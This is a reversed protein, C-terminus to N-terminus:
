PTRSGSPQRKLCEIDDSRCNEEGLGTVFVELWNIAADAVSGNGVSSNAANLGEAVASNAGASNSAGAYAAGVGTVPVEVGTSKGSISCNSCTFPVPTVVFLNGGAIGADNANIVGHPAYLDVSGADVGPTAALAQIGSGAIAARLTVTPQGNDDYAINLAPASIATKAGRGADINGETSWILINGGDAAFVRSQNVLFDKYALANVDGTTQAVIGLQDPAKNIGFSTPALALGVNIEGGPAMLDINGGQETYIRSFYLEINGSYPNSQGAALDPNAGPFLTSIAAYAGSLDGVGSSSSASALRGYQRLLDFFLGELFTRQLQPTLANLQQKATAADIAPSAGLSQMYAIVQADFQSSTDIYKTIFAADQEGGGSVGAAVSISAGNAALIPNLLNARTSVGASTGLDVTRGATLQLAGPGDVVIGNLDQLISGNGAYVSPYAIDRGATVSTVDGATLNQAILNVDIVDRGASITVPKASWIGEPGSNLNPTFEVDGHLAVLRVPNSGAQSEALHVPTAAHQDPLPNALAAVIDDYIQLGGQPAAPSPIQDVAADAIILQGANGSRGTTAIISHNAFLQLNGNPAPSLALTRLIEIDGSLAAVNVTPPLVDLTSLTGALNTLNGGFFSGSVADKFAGNNDDLVVNGGVSTLNLASAPSYTSFYAVTGGGQLAGRNLLSPNLVETLAVDGRAVVGVSADGLAISPALGTGGLSPDVSGVLGGAQIEASGRGVYYSGGLISGGATVRLDGGGQIQVANLPLTKGAVQVGISPISASLDTIDGGASVTVNGGGLAGIGQQFSRYDVTWATASGTPRNAPAGVRWLWANVFQDTQAGVVNGAVDISIDGGDVPYARGQLTGNGGSLIIGDTGAVGATYLVSEQNGLTFNGSAAVDIFGNGTRVMVPAYRSNPATAKGTNCVTGKCAAVTVDAPNANVTALPNAAALDAGAVIRYSWSDQAVTPLTFAGLGTTARFGDSLSANFTIGNEARLTLIGPVDGNPGFRWNYLNWSSNLALTGTGNSQTSADIEVGPVIRFSPNSAQGLSTAIAAASAMFNAADAYLPNAPDAAIDAPSVVGTGNQYTSYGELTTRSAGSVVGNMAVAAGGSTVGEAVQAPVRLLVTGDGGPGSAGPGGGAANITSGSELRVGGGLSELQVTGGAQGALGAHVDISGALTILDAAALTVRGGTVGSADLRGDITIAGQDAELTVSSAKLTSGPALVLDGIGRQRMSQGGTFGGSGILRVIGAFDGFNQADVSISAGGGGALSGDATVNGMPASLSLSGGKGGAGASVSLSSGSSLVINGATALSITGGPSALTVGAYDQAVGSVDIAGASLIALNGGSADGTTTLSVRGSPLVIPAAVSISSGTVALSGGLGSVAGLAALKAPEKIVVAGSSQLSLDANTGTTLRSATIDLAGANGLHTTATATVAQQAALSLAGFGSVQFQGGGFEIEGASIALTGTGTGAAAATVNRSNLITVTNSSTLSALDGITGFGAFGAADFSMNQANVDVSGFINIAGNSQLALNRLGQAALINTGLVTGTGSGAAAGLSIGPSQVALDAGALSLAGDTVVRSSAELYVSGATAMVSSGAALTLVGATGSTNSRTVTSQAGASVGLFAGDGNFSYTQSPPAAGVPAIVAGSDLSIQNQAALLVNPANLSAGAALEISQAATDIANGNRLGGILLTQVGLADLSAPTLLVQGPQLAAATNAVLIDASSIDVEGGLGGATATLLRGGLSLSESAVLGLVGSDEPLRPLARANKAADAAFFQNAGTITYQAQQLVVSAPVVQFGTTRSDGFATGAVAAYGAIINGGGLVPYSQGSGIDQYGAVATVLFAGPLLAYRSPLLQYFGAALGTTGALYVSDGAQLSTGSSINPDFPAVNLNLGPLIAFQTPRGGNAATNALVDNTGGPGSIWEYAQLDGGGRVDIVAGQQVTVNAGNLTIRQSPPAIGNSGYVLNNGTPLPYVWSLGGQTTGFPITLGAASTSTTSNPGLDITTADITIDGLPARLTGQQIVTGASLTMSGGASLLPTVGGPNTLAILLGAAPSSVSGPDVSLVFSSLTSPYIQQAALDLEGAAFLAGDLTDPTASSRNPLGRLRLDGSANFDTKGFNELASTGYLEIFSGGVALTGTGPTAARVDSYVQDSSGFDIYPAQIRAVANPGALYTAADLTVQRGASLTVGGLFEIVGPLASGGAVPLPAAQLRVTDFGASRLSNTAIDALGATSVPVDAGPQTVVPTQTEALIIQRADAPFSSVGGFSFAYDNRNSGDLTVSLSGGVPQPVGAGPTGATAQMTGGLQMGEAATLNVAGGASAVEVARVAGGGVGTEDIMAATGAVDILSGPLLEIYGRSATINVTGGKLVSGTFLGLGNPFARSTGAVDLVGNAGLWIAQSAVYNAELQSSGLSLSITGGPARLTGDEEIRVNSTLSLNAAPDAAILAGAGITLSPTADAVTIINALGVSDTVPLSQTLSLNVPARFQDALMGVSATGVLTDQNALRQFNEPLQLNQQRLTITTGPAVSLGAQDATLSYAGFGGANLATPTLWLLAPDGASCDTTAICIGSTTLSLSGGKYLGYGRLTGALELHPAAGALTGAVTQAGISISGGVGANLAGASTLQAGGSVDIVAGPAVRLGPGYGNDNSLASLTVTGGNIVIPATNGEPYVLPNDNVWEGRATLSAAAGVALAFEPPNTGYATFTPEAVATISGGPADIQGEIDVVKAFAGFSGGVPLQVAIGAPELFKGNTHISVNGFAQSGLLEPRLISTTYAAPLPDTVPNFPSGDANQLTPLIEGPALTVNQVGLDNGAAARVGINLTAPLPLQGPLRQYLGASTAANVSGDLIFQPAIIDMTGASRGEVYGPSYHPQIAAYTTSSGWKSDSITASNAIGAYIVNPNASEIGVIQGQATLLKTTNLYGGTYQIQGGSLDIMSGPALIADGNSQIAITGGALNREVVNHGIAGIEGSIDALPTGQRIDVYVTKSRLPGNQQLPSNALEVGRLQVPIVNVSVPLTIRAGSVDMLADPALYFRSGDQLSVGENPGAAATVEITGGTARAVSQSMLDITHGTMQIDSRLQAVSDVTTSPDASDLTVDTSSHSGLLLQGGAGAQLTGSIGTAGSASITGHDGAQLRITGNENISTTASVRGLQNVALGALTVNGREALIQGVLAANSSAAANATTGNTVTGGTDGVQVLLGRLSPDSSSALYITNGAALMAQGDPTTVTGQNTISPAFILIEGGATTKLTATPSITVAGSTGTPFVQFAPEGNSGPAILGGSVAAPNINLTSAVLGGVSVQAGPGFIIGNQNILFVRGNSQLSGQIQSPSADNIQNLAVAGASPQVFQVTGDPSINFSQWNLTVNATTQNVTLRSGGPKYTAQGASLWQTAGFKSGACASGACPVPLTPPNATAAVAWFLALGPLGFLGGAKHTM